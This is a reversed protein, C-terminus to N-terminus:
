LAGQLILFELVLLFEAVLLFVRFRRGAREVM